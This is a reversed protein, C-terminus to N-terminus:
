RFCPRKESNGGWVKWFCADYGKGGWRGSGKGSFLRSEDDRKDFKARIVQSM